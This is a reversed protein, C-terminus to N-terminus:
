PNGARFRKLQIRHQKNKPEMQLCKESLEIAREVNGLRYEIEALTDLYTADPNSVAVKSALLKAHELHRNCLAALWATNNGILADHPFEELHKILPQYYLHFWEDALEKGFVREAEPVIEIPVDIDQPKCRFAIRVLKDALDRDNNSIAELILSEFANAFFLLSTDIEVGDNLWQKKVRM